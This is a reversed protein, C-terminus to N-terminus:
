QIECIREMSATQIHPSLCELTQRHDQISGDKTTHLTVSNYKHSRRKLNQFELLRDMLEEALCPASILDKLMVVVTNWKRVFRIVEDLYNELKLTEEHQTVSPWECATTLAETHLQFRHSITIRHSKAKIIETRLDDYTM